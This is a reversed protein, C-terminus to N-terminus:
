QSVGYWKSVGDSVLAVRVSFSYQGMSYNTFTAGNFDIAVMLDSGQTIIHSLNPPPGPGGLTYLITILKGKAVSNALPLYVTTPVNLLVLDSTDAINATSTNVYQFVRYLSTPGAPGQIGTNGQVGQSGAPGQIGQPGILGAPGQIGTNGQVGQPGAPGQIGQPGILGQPGQLGTIGQLGQPGQLGKPGQPGPIGQLGTPGNEAYLAYPVSLLQTTGISLYGSGMDIEIEIFKGGTGWNVGSFTGQIVNGAGINLNIVGFPNTVINHTEQYVITGTIVIDHLSIKVNINKNIIMAGSADRAVAQYKFSLPAQAFMSYQFCIFILIHKM